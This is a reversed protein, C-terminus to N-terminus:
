VTRITLTIIGGFGTLKKDPPTINVFDLEEILCEVMEGTRFDQWTVVDGAAEADELAALRQIARGEYGATANYKDTETDYNLLPVKIIRTRPTSPVAKLQYGKFTPGVASNSEDRYLVFRLGLADQAGVPQTIKSEPSGIASDYSNIDYINGDLSVSQLSMSGYAFDGHAVIRKFNKPELTNYRIYGTTLYGSPRLNTAHEMYLYGVGSTSAATCLAIRDTNGMFGCSTTINDVTSDWHVDNAYAFRLNDIENALNIRVVGPSSNVISEYGVGAACWVFSDRACFDYVPEHTEFILPGYTLSGDAGVSAVRVGKSTGIVIYGLYGFLRHVVEGIPLEAATIPATLTPMAGSNDLTFKFISSKIGEFGSIYIASGSEAVSTYSYSSSPHTYVATPETAQSIPFEYIKNNAGLVIRQKVYGITARTVTSTTAAATWMTTPATSTSASILKKEMRMKGNKADNTVWYMTNGDTTAAFVPDATSTNYDVWDEKNGDSDIRDLDYGDHLIIGNLTTGSTNAWQASFIRQRARGTSTYTFDRDATTNHGQSMDRLLTVTGENWVNVGYSERIRYSNSALTTSYPNALPDYYLIGEGAHFSSQSRLWWGTLSQEGPDRQSDFQQKRFPATAREYPRQDNIALVFPVGGLAVDYDFGTNQWITGTGVGLDIAIARSARGETIDRGAM